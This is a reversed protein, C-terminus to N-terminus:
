SWSHVLYGPLSEAISRCYYDIKAFPSEKQWQKSNREYNSCPVDLWHKLTSQGIQRVHKAPTISETNNVKVRGKLLVTLTIREPVKHDKM